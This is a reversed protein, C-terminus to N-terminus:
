KGKRYAHLRARRDFRPLARRTPRGICFDLERRLRAGGRAHCRRAVRLDIAGAVLDHATGFPEVGPNRARALQPNDRDIGDGRTDVRHLRRQATERQRERGVLSAVNREGVAFAAVAAVAAQKGAVNRGPLDLLARRERGHLRQEFVRLHEFDAAVELEVQLRERQAAGIKRGVIVDHQHRVHEIGAARIVRQRRERLTVEIVGHDIVVLEGARSRM